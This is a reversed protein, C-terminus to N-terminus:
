RWEELLRYAISWPRPLEAPLNKRNFWQVKEIEVGDPKAEGSAYEARFGAMPSNPYPWPQSRRYVLNKVEIGTEERIERVVAEELSEGAEVFGAILGWCSGHTKWELLVDEGRTVLTIVAPNLRPYFLGGCSPCRMAREKADRELATACRVCFRTETRWYLLESAEGLRNWTAASVKGHLARLPLPRADPFPIGQEVLCACTGDRLTERATGRAIEFYPNEGGDDAPRSWLTSPNTFLLAKM